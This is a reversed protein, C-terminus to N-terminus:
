TIRKLERESFITIKRQAIKVNDKGATTCNNRHLAIKVCSGKGTKSSVFKFWHRRMSEVSTTCAAQKDGEERRSIQACHLDVMEAVRGM